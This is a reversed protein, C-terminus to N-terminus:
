PEPGLWVPEGDIIVAPRAYVPESGIRQMYFVKPSRFPVPRTDLSAGPIGTFVLPRTDLDSM